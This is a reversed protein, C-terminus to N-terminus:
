RNETTLNENRSKISAILKIIMASIKKTLEIYEDAKEKPLIETNKLFYLQSRLEANSSVAFNLFRIFEKYSNRDHGEAINSSVSLAARLIRDKLGYDKFSNLDKYLDTALDISIQWVNLQEFSSM